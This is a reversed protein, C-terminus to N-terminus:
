VLPLLLEDEETDTEAEEIEELTDKENGGTEVVVLERLDM